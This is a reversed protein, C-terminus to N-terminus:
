EDSSENPDSVFWPITTTVPAIGAIVPPMRPILTIPIPPIEQIPAGTPDRVIVMARAGAAVWTPSRFTFKLVGKDRVDYEFRESSSDENLPDGPTAPEYTWRDATHSPVLVCLRLASSPPDVPAGTQDQLQITVTGLQSLEVQWDERRVLYVTREYASPYIPFDQAYRDAPSSGTQGDRGLSRLDFDGTPLGPSIEWGFNFLDDSVSANAWGDRFVPLHGSAASSYELEPSLYPGRWGRGVGDTVDWSALTQGADDLPVLLERLSTPLRGMDVAFGSLTVAGGSAVARSLIADRVQERRSKTLEYRAQVDANDALSVASAAVAALLFVVLLLELLTLTRAVRVRSIM